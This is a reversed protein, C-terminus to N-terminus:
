LVSETGVLTPCSTALSFYFTERATPQTQRKTKNKKPPSIWCFFTYFHQVGPIRKKMSGRSLTLSVFCPCRLALASIEGTTPGTSCCCWKTLLYTCCSRSTAVTTCTYGAARTSHCPWNLWLWPSPAVLRSHISRKGDFLWLGRLQLAQGVRAQGLLAWFFTLLLLFSTAVLWLHGDRGGALHSHLFTTASGKGMMIETGKSSHISSGIGREKWDCVSSISSIKTIYLGVGHSGLANREQFTGAHFRCSHGQLGLDQLGQIWEVGEVTM